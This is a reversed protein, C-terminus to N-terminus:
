ICLWEAIRNSIPFGLQMELWLWEGNPNIEFFVHDGDPTLALDIAGFQLDLRAVLRRCLEELSNPLDYIRHELHPNHTARWDVRSSENSQSLIEAAFVSNGVVTVRIDRTKDVFEQFIVPALSLGNLDNANKSSLETTFIARNGEPSTVYGSSVAKAVMKSERVLKRVPEEDNTILTRPIRFGLRQAVALQYPKWEAQRIAQPSSLWRNTSLSALSGELFARTERECFARSHLDLDDPLDPAVNRRYWVSKIQDDRITREGDSISLGAAPDFRAKIGSPFRDTDLRFFPSGAKALASIVHDAATDYSTTVLLVTEATM